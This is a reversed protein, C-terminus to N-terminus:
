IPPTEEEKGAMTANGFRIATSAKLPPFLLLVREARARANPAFVPSSPFPFL